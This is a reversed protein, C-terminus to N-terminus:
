TFNFKSFNWGFLHTEQLSGCVLMRVTYVLNRKIKKFNFKFLKLKVSIVALYTILPNNMTCKIASRNEAKSRKINIM